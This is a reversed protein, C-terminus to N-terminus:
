VLLFSLIFLSVGIWAIAVRPANVGLGALLTLIFALLLLLMRMTLM